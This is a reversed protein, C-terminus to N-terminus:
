VFLVRAYPDPTRTLLHCPSATLDASMGDSHHRVKCCGKDLEVRWGSTRAKRACHCDSRPMLMVLLRQVSVFSVIYVPMSSQHGLIQTSWDVHTVDRM